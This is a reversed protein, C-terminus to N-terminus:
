NRVRLVAIAVGRVSVIDDDVQLPRSPGLKASNTMIYPAEYLRMVTEAQGTQWDAVQGCVIDGSRPRRNQDIVLIDGPLVGSMDLAWGKMVWADRGNAGDIWAAVTKRVPDSAPTNAADYPLADPERLGGAKRAGPFHHPPVGSYNAVADLTKQSIGISGSADNLYRTLTSPSVGAAEALQSASLNLHRSVARIWDKTDRQTEM